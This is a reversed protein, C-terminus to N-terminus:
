SRKISVKEIEEFDGDDMIKHSGPVYWNGTIDFQAITWEGMYKVWYFGTERQMDKVIPQQDFYDPIGARKLEEEVEERTIGDKNKHCFTCFENKSSYTKRCYTCKVPTNSLLVAIIGVLPTLFLSILFSNFLGIEKKSGFYGIIIACIGFAIFVNIIIMDNGSLSFPFIMATM